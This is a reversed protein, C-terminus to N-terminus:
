KSFIQLISHSSLLSISSHLSFLRSIAWESNAAMVYKLSWDSTIPNGVTALKWRLWVKYKKKKKKLKLVLFGGPTEPWATWDFLCTDVPLWLWSVHLYVVSWALPCLHRSAAPVAPSVYVCVCASGTWASGAKGDRRWPFCRGSLARNLSLPFM